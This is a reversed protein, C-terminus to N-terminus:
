SGAEAPAEEAVTEEHLLRWPMGGLKDLVEKKYHDWFAKTETDPNGNRYARVQIVDIGGERERVEATVHSADPESSRRVLLIECAGEAYRQGYNAVCIVQRCGEEILEGTSRAMRVCYGDAEWAYLSGVAEIKGAIKRDLEANEKHKVLVATRAHSDRLNKPMTVSESHLDYGLQACEELYDQWDGAIGGAYRGEPYNATQARVYKAIRHISVLCLLREARGNEEALKECPIDARRLKCIGDADIPRGLKRMRQVLRVESNGANVQRLAKLDARTIGLVMHLPIDGGHWLARKWVMGGIEEAALRTLGLKACKELSPKLKAERLWRSADFVEDSRAMEQLATYRWPTDELMKRIGTPYVRSKILAEDGPRTVDQWCLRQGYTDRKWDYAFMRVLGGAGLYVRGVPDITQDYGHREVQDRVIRRTVMYYSVMLGGPARGVVQFNARDAVVASRNLSKITVKSRCHPCRWTTDLLRGKPYDATDFSRKCHTCYGHLLKGRKEYYIYRSEELVHNDIWRDIDSPLPPAEAMLADVERQEALIRGITAGRRQAFQWSHCARLTDADDRGFIRGLGASEEDAYRFRRERYHTYYVLNYLTAERWKGQGHDYARFDYERPSCYVSYRLDAYRDYLWLVLLRAETDGDPVVEGGFEDLVKRGLEGPVIRALVTYDVNEERDLYGPIRVAPPAIELLKSRKM